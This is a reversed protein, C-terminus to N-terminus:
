NFKGLQLPKLHPALRPCEEKIIAVTVESAYIFVKHKKIKHRFLDGALGFVHDGHYHSLFYANKNLDNEFNDVLIFPIEEIHGDFASRM